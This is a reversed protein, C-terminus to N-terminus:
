VFSFTGAPEVGIPDKPRSTQKRPLPEVRRLM